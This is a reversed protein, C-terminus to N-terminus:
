FLRGIGIYYRWAGGVDFSGGLLVPGVLTDAIAGVSINTKLQAEDLDDFASGTEIWGGLFIPGGLFDPLRGIGRLYGTAIVAYHDGRLEGVDFAGLRLPAGLQFQETALPHGWTTGVGSTLFLRDNRLVPRFLSGRIDLQTIGDNSRETQMEPPVDPSEAIYDIEAAARLGSSPVVASDQGDYRWALRARTERGHLEPLGPDGTEVGADLDAVAFGLRVDSDRGFNAGVFLGAITRRENYRAVVVDDSVFPLTGQRAAASGAVFLPTDGIPRYL